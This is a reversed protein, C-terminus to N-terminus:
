LNDYNKDASTIILAAELLNKAKYHPMRNQSLIWETENGNDILVTKCGANRGAEVDNLIDGVFWSRTIDINHESAARFILGPKPKRCACITDHSQMSYPKHPCYYFGALLVGFENMSQYIYTEVIHLDQESFYGYEIGPQNTIIILRYGANYFLQLGEQAGLMFQIKRPNVNYPVDKMITGDKDLFIAKTMIEYHITDTIFIFYYLLSFKNLTFFNRLCKLFFTDVKLCRM